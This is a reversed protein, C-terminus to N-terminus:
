GGCYQIEQAWNMVIQHDSFVALAVVTPCALNDTQNNSIWAEVAVPMGITGLCCGFFWSLRAQSTLHSYFTGRNWEIM